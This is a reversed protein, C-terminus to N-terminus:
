AGLRDVDINLLAAYRRAEPLAASDPGHRHRNIRDLMHDGVAERDVGMIYRHSMENLADVYIEFSGALRSLTERRRDRAAGDELAAMRYMTKGTSVYYGTDVAAAADRRLVGPSAARRRRLSQPFVGSIFLARDAYRRYAEYRSEYFKVRRREDLMDSFYMTRPRGEADPPDLDRARM